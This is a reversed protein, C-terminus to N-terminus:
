VERQAKFAPIFRLLFYCISFNIVANIGATPVLSGALAAVFLGPIMPSTLVIQVIALATNNSVVSLPGAAFTLVGFLGGWLVAIVLRLNM